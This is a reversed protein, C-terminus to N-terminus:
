KRKQVTIISYKTATGVGQRSITLTRKGAQLAAVLQPVLKNHVGLSFVKPEGEPTTDTLEFDYKEAEFTENKSNTGKSKRKYVVGTFELEVAEGDSLQVFRSNAKADEQAQKVEEYVESLSKQQGTETETEM